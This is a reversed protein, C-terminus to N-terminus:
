VDIARVFRVEDLNAGGLTVSKSSSEEMAFGLARYFRGARLNEPFAWLSVVKFGQERLSARAHRWLLRGVGRGWHAAGVYIAWIEAADTSAGEDRSPGFAVWGLVENSEEAVLIQPRGQVIRERWKGEYEDVSLSALYDDPVIGPYAAQWTRVHIEAISGADEIRAPRANM